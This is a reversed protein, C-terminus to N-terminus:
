EVEEQNEEEHDTVAISAVEQDDDLRIITVGQTNRSYVKVQNLPLRIVIGRTTTILLDEDGNVARMAVLNGNKETINITKVGKGGRKTLRYDEKSSLKGFGKQTISLIYQGEKSTTVGVVEGKDTNIGNVGAANRGMVRVDDENFRVVKGKSSAILIEEDGSTNKVDFLQDGERLTIAIKGSQRINEFQNLSVRKVVGNKTVFVLNRDSGYEDVSIIARVKEDKENKLLNVIPLGKGQRSYEPIQYGRMRYVKGYNTFFLIDTHTSTILMKDVVDDNHTTMGKIGKGGRNQLRYTDLNVRKIYGNTTLTIIIDEVPILEEDEIQSSDNSFTTRREDKYKNKIEILDNKIVEMLREHQELIGTLNEIVSGIDVIELDIKEQQIGTLRQLQMELVAKSQRESLQFNDVLAKQAIENNKSQRIIKIIEDINRSAISLGQLIHEREKAKNLDFQSRRTLVEVQHDIFANLVDKLPLIKPEGNVLALMNISYSTQLQSYKFLNNLIVEPIAEKKLEIVIRIGERSSEDRLDTIGEVVKNKVLDAIREIMASKNVQYPIETVIIKSKGHEAEHIECKSRLVISGNGTEYAKKIGAKGLIIGATPFDPGQIYNMLEIVSMEKDEILALTADIVEGLNHPPINTAMGVAIGTSGNILLNPIRAPLVEPELEEGDYNPVFNVTDKNIDRVMESAIKSMRAETYRMAAASDGDISGFNGHGDILVYRTSFEQALRVMSEYIASDGHPHYKGMVDGVIKASKKHPTNYAFGQENMGYIIRRHVPKLGDRVDPLARAVIVSMAYDLFSSKVEKSINIHEIRDEKIDSNFNDKENDIINSM